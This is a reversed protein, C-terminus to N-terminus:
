GACVVCQVWEVVTAKLAATSEMKPPELSTARTTPASSCFVTLALSPAECKALAASKLLCRGISSNVNGARYAM